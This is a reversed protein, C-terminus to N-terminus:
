GRLFAGSEVVDFVLSAANAAALPQADSNKDFGWDCIGKVVICEVLERVTAARVAAGEMEGGEADPFSDKMWTRLPASDVLVDWSLLLGRWVKFAAPDQAAVFREFLRHGATVVEGRQRVETEGVRMTLTQLRLGVIVDGLSQEEERLGFCIGLMIVFQPKWNAILEPLSYATSVPSTAGPGVRALLVDAGGIVGLRFVPHGASYDLADRTAHARRLAAELEVDTAVLLLVRNRGLAAAMLAAHADQRTRLYRVFYRGCAVAMVLTTPLTAVAVLLGTLRAYGTGPVLDPPNQFLVRYGIWEFATAWSDPRNDCHSGCAASEWGSVLYSVSALMSAMVALYVFFFAGSEVVRHTRAPLRRPLRVSVEPEEHGVPLADAWKAVVSRMHRTTIGKRPCALAVDPGALANLRAAVENLLVAPRSGDEHHCLVMAWQEYPLQEAAVQDPRPADRVLSRLGRAAPTVRDALVGLLYVLLLVSLYVAPPQGFVRCLVAVVVAALFFIALGAVMVVVYWQRDVWRLPGFGPGRDAPRQLVAFSGAGRWILRGDLDARYIQVSV